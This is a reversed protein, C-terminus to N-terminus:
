AGPLVGEVHLAAQGAIRAGATNFLLVRCSTPNPVDVFNVIAVAHTTGYATATISRIDLWPKTFTYLTGGADGAVCTVVADENVLRVSAEASVGDIRLLDDAGSAIVDIKIRVYRVSSVSVNSVGVYDTWVDGINVKTSITVTVTGTGQVWTRLVQASIVTQSLVAGIDWVEEYSATTAGPQFYIPSGANVQDQAHAWSRSQFHTQWTENNVLLFLGSGTAAFNTGTGLFTGAYSAQLEFDRPQNVQLDVFGPLGLNGAMDQAQLWVRYLGSTRQLYTEFRTDGGATGVQLAQAFTQATTGIRVIYKAIPQTTKADAWWLLINNDVVEGKTIAVQAPAAVVIQATAETASLNGYRDVHRAQLTQTGAPLWGWLWSTANRQLPSAGPGLEAGTAWATGSRLWTHAYDAVNAPQWNARIGETSVSLQLGAVNPPPLALQSGTIQYSYAGVDALAQEGGGFVNFSTFKFNVFRGVLAADLAGSRALASDVRVFAAGNSHAASTTQYAGRVLGQLSYSGAGLLNATQYAFYEGGAAGAVWCLTSFAAADQASGSLLQMDGSALQVQADGTSAMAATLAGFRAPGYLRGEERYNVGDLSVWVRCGGWNAQQGRVAALVELGTAPVMEAAAEFFVPAAVNGPSDNYNHGFGAGAQAGYQPASASGIPADEAEYTYAGSSEQRATIRVPVRDLGSSDDTLTVLDMLGLLGFMAPLEIRYTNLVTMQRQLLQQAVRQAVDPLHIAHMQVVDAPREGFLEIHAADSASMVEIAYQNYRNTWEIKVVNSRDENVTPMVEVPRLIQGGEGFVLDLVPTTNPLYTGWSSTIGVDQMPVCDLQGGQWVWQANCIEALGQLWDRAPRQEAMAVSIYIQNARVYNKLATMDSLRSARWGVASPHLTLFDQLIVDPWADLISGGVAHGSVLEFSHNEIEAQNTLTYDQAYVYAIGSYALAQAAQNTQLWTWISQGVEGRKLSLGLEGLASTSSAAVQVTYRVTVDAGAFAADFTYVGAVSVTYESGLSLPRGTYSGEGDYARALNEVLSVHAVFTAGAVPVSITLGGPVTFRHTRNQLQTGVSQGAYQRKGKWASAIGAVPGSCLAMIAGARYEYKTDVQTVGGGGKGGQRTTTTVPISQFDGFWVLNGVVRTQGWVMPIALGQMSTQVRLNGLRPEETAITSKKGAM